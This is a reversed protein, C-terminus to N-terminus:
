LPRRVVLVTQDDERPRAHTHTEVAELLARGIELVRQSSIFDRFPGDRHLRFIKSVRQEADAAADIAGALNQEPAVIFGDHVIQGDAGRSIAIVRELMAHGIAPDAFGRVLFFGEEEWQKRQTPDLM